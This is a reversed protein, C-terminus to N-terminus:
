YRLSYPEEWGYNQDMVSLLAVPKIRRRIQFYDFEETIEDLLDDHVENGKTKWSQSPEM